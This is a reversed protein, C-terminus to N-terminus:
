EGLAAESDDTEWTIEDVTGEDTEDEEVADAEECHFKSAMQYAGAYPDENEDELWVWDPGTLDDASAEGGQDECAKKLREYSARYAAWAEDKTDGFAVIFSTFPPSLLDEDAEPEAPAAAEAAPATVLGFVLLLGLFAGLFGLRSGTRSAAMALERELYSGVLMMLIRLAPGCTVQQRSVSVCSNAEAVLAVNDAQGNGFDSLDSEENSGPQIAVSGLARQGM